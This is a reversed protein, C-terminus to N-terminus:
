DGVGFDTNNMLIDVRSDDIYRPYIRHRFVGIVRSDPKVATSNPCMVNVCVREFHELALEMDREMTKETQGAVGFLLNAEDFDRAIAAPDTEGIGKRLVSERFNYDFTELGLKMKLTVPAFRERLAPIRGRYLWHSEFHLVGIGKERCLLGIRELTGEDLEFVSGSNIVELESYKGTVRDLVATNLAFNEAEDPSADLHYDCFSCKRYGCGRGRLLVIERPRKATIISYRNMKPTCLTLFARLGCVLPMTTSM